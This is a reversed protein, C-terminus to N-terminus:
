LAGSDKEIIFTELEAMVRDVEESFSAMLEPIREMHNEKLASELEFSRKHLEEAGITGSVGKFTHALRRAEDRDGRDMKARIQEVIDRFREFTMKLVKMYLEPDQNAYDLGARTNVGALKPFDDAPAPADMDGPIDVVDPRAEPKIWRVLTEYLNYPKIPKPIHDNMGALLCKERDVTMASATMALIPLHSADPGRRIKRTATLGDMEPMHLDMLICDFREKEAMEVADRGNLAVAVRIRLKELLERAVQLNIENDEVLLVHCGELLDRAQEMSVPEARAAPKETSLGFRATFTFESGAGPESHVQIDGGMMHVLRRSITLGLGTGGYKRTTSTDVQHFPQFLQAIQERTMGIGTDRVIFRLRVGQDCDDQDHEGAPEVTISIEGKRTFKVANSGLNTLVQGLRLSDGKLPSPIAESIEMRFALGKDASGVRIISAVQELVEKISFDRIELDLKGAEIKSFDLIDNILGLLSEASAHIKRQYDLQQPSMETQLALHSLGIIANMPTRIEHSMNALFVSKAQNAVEAEEKAMRMERMSVKLQGAMSNFAEALQGLEDSSSKPNRADLNGNRLEDATHTLQIVKKTISSNFVLAIVVALMSSLIVAVLLLITAFLRTDNIQRRTNEIENGSLKVLEEIIPDVNVVQLDFERLKSRIEVDAALMQKATEMHRELLATIAQKDDDGMSTAELVANKFATSINFAMQMSPRNRTSLYDNENSEMQHYINLLHSDDSKKLLNFLDRSQAKLLSQYGTKEDFVKSVLKIAELFTENFLDATSLFFDINVESRKLNSDAESDAILQKLSKSYAKVLTIQEHVRREVRLNNVVSGLRQTNLFFDKQYYRSREIGAKIELVLRQIELPTVIAQETRKTVIVLAIYGILAVLLMLAILASFAYVFKRTISQDRWIHGTLRKIAM